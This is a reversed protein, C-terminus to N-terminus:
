PRGPFLHVVRTQTPLGFLLVALTLGLLLAATWRQGPTLLDRLQLLAAGARSVLARM